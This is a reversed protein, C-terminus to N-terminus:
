VNKFREMRMGRSGKILIVNKSTINQKLYAKLDKANKFFIGDKGFGDITHKTLTGYGLLVDIGKKKAYCGVEKHLKNRYRGLELMDGLVLVTKKKYNSLLDISKKTSDPNANYTDDILTSGKIWKSKIQRLKNFSNSNLVKSFYDLEQSLSYHVAFAALINNINHDGELLTNIKLPKKILKSNVNFVLAGSKVRVGTPYFDSSRKMGFTIVNINPRIRKWKNLHNKNDNPVVLFGDKKINRIIESKVKLVGNINKLVELHSNGINTIVGVDPKLIKSLYNIDNFKSAGIELVLHKSKPSANMISIPVGIENNFNKITKSNNKLTKAIINTTTTKGNSGTIAIVKGQYDKIINQSIKKLAGITNKVYIIKKNKDNLYKKDDAIVIVAGKDIAENVFDNGDFNKGKIAIFLSDKKISRTDISINKILEYKKIRIGLYKSLDSTNAIFKM